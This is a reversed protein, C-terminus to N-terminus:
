LHIKGFGNDAVSEPFIQDYNETTKSAHSRPDSCRIKLVFLEENYSLLNVM